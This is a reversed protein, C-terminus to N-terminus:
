PRGVANCGARAHGPNKKRWLGEVSKSEREPEDRVENPGLWDIERQRLVDPPAGALSGPSRHGNPPHTAHKKPVLHQQMSLTGDAAKKAGAPGRCLREVHRREAEANTQHFKYAQSLFSVRKRQLKRLRKCLHTM